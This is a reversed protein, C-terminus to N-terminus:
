EEYYEEIDRGRKRIILAFVIFMLIAILIIIVISKTDLKLIIPDDNKIEEDDNADDDDVIDDDTTDDNADDDDVFDDDTTDDDAVDDDQSDDDPDDTYFNDYYEQIMQNLEISITTNEVKTNIEYVEDLNFDVLLGIGDQIIDPIIFRYRADNLILLEHIQMSFNQKKLSFILKKNDSSIFDLIGGKDRIKVKDSTENNYSVNRIAIEDKNKDLVRLDYEGREYGNITISYNKGEPVLYREKMGSSLILSDSMAYYSQNNDDFGLLNGTEDEIVANASCDLIIEVFEKRQSQYHFSIPGIFDAKEEKKFQTTGFQWLGLYIQYWGDEWEDMNVISGIDDIIRFTHPDNNKISIKKSKENYVQEIEGISNLKGIEIHLEYNVYYDSPDRLFFYDMNITNVEGRQIGYGIENNDINRWKIGEDFYMEYNNIRISKCNEQIDISGFIETMDDKNFIVYYSPSVYTGPKCFGQKFVDYEFRNCNDGILEGGGLNLIDLYYKVPDTYEYAYGIIVYAHAPSLSFDSILIPTGADIYDMIMNINVDNEDDIKYMGSSVRFDDWLYNFLYGNWLQKWDGYGECNKINLLESIEWSHINVNYYQLISSVATPFCWNCPQEYVPVRLIKEIINVEEILEISIVTSKESEGYKNVCSIQYFYSNGPEVDTDVYNLVYGFEQLFDISLETLGRYLRFNIIESGGDFEPTQWSLSISLEGPIGNFNQPSSPVDDTIESVAATRPGEGIHNVASIQYFYRVGKELGSDTFNMQINSVTNIYICGDSTIGRYINYQSIQGLSLGIPVNWSIKINDTGSEISLNQPVNPLTSEDFDAKGDHDLDFNYVRVRIDPYYNISAFRTGNVNWMSRGYIGNSPDIVTEEKWSSMNTTDYIRIGNDRLSVAVHYGDKHFRIDRVEDGYYIEQVESWNSTKWVKLRGGDSGGVIYKGDLTFELCNPRYGLGRLETINTGNFYHKVRIAEEEWDAFAFYKFDPSFEAEGHSGNINFVKGTLTWSGTNWFKMMQYGKTIMYRSDQTFRFESIGYSSHTSNMDRIVSWTSTDIILIHTSMPDGETNNGIAIYRGDPSWKMPPSGPTESCFSITKFISWNSTYYIYLNGDKCSEALFRGDPSWDVMWPWDKCENLSAEETYSIMRSPNIRNEGFANVFIVSNILLLLFMGTATYKKMISGGDYMLFNEIVM